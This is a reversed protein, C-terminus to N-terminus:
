SGLLALCFVTKLLKTLRDHLFLLLPARDLLSVSETGALKRVPVLALPVTVAKFSASPAQRVCLIIMSPEYMLSRTVANSVSSSSAHLM